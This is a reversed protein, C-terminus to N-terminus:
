RVRAAAATVNDRGGADLAAECLRELTRALPGDVTLLEGLMEDTLPEWVGDSCLLVADGPRLPVDFIEPEVPDGMVARTITNRRPHHRAENANLRGARLEDGVWSHDNTLQQATGGRILYARSDGVNAIVAHDDEICALVLTTGPDGGILDRVGAVAASADHVAATLARDPPWDAALSHMAAEIAAEASERGGVHGGMGDALALVVGKARPGADWADQNETRVTGRDTAGAVELGGVDIEVARSVLEVTM